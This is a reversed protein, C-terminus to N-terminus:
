LGGQWELVIWRQKAVWLKVRKDERWGGNEFNELGIM